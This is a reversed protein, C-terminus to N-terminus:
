NEIGYNFLIKAIENLTDGTAASTNTFVIFGVKSAENYFMATTVGQEGGSHGIIERNLITNNYFLGMGFEGNNIARSKMLDVTQSNLIRVGNYTGQQVLLMTMYKSLDRVTTRLGGNPYDVFSYNTTGDTTLQNYPIAFENAPTNSIRWETKQMGLPIFINQKCYTDFPQGAVRQVIYGALALGMNSYSETTGPATTLFNQPSNYQGGSSYLDNFFTSLSTPHDVGISYFNSNPALVNYNDDSLGSSHNLLMKLTIPTNPFSPNRLSFPLYTNVDANINLLNQEHLKMAATATISKSISAILYRTEANATLNTMRNADGFGDSYLIKGNKIISFSLSNLNNTKAEKKLAEILKSQNSQGPTSDDKQCSFM